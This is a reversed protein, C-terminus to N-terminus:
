SAGQELDAMYQEKLHDLQGAVSGDILVDGFRLTAGAVLSPDVRYKVEVPQGTL